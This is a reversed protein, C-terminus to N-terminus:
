GFIHLASEKLGPDDSSAWEFMLKLAEPWTMNGDDDTWFLIVCICCAFFGKDM